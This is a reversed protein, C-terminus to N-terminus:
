GPVRHRDIRRDQDADRGARASCVGSGARGDKRPYVAYFYDEKPAGPIVVITKTENAAKFTMRTRVDRIQSFWFWTSAGYRTDMEVVQGRLSPLQGEPVVKDVPTKAPDFPTGDVRILDATDLNMWEWWSPRTEGGQFTDRMVFYSPGDSRATKLFLVHRNWSMPGQGDGFIQSPYFRSAVAYDASPGFGYDRVTADVRGFCEQVDRRGLKVQNHYIANNETAPGSYYQYGTGPSLPAGKGYLIVNLADTDWHGWNMGARFLMATENPTNFQDRFAVGYTPLFTTRM